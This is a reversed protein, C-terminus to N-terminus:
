DRLRAKLEANEQELRKRAKRELMFRWCVGLFYFLVILGGTTRLVVGGDNLASGFVGRGLFVKWVIGAASQAAGAMVVVIALCGLVQCVRRAFPGYKGMFPPTPTLEVQERVFYLIFYLVIVQAVVFLGIIPDSHIGALVDIIFQRM